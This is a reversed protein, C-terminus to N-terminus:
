LVVAYCRTDFRCIPEGYQKPRQAEGSFKIVFSVITTSDTTLIELDDDIM